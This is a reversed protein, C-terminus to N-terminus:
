DIRVSKVYAKTVQMYGKNTNFCEFTYYHGPSKMYDIIQQADNEQAYYELRAPEGQRMGRDLWSGQGPRLGADAKSTGPSFEVILKVLGQSNTPETWCRLSGGGRVRLPFSPVTAAQVLLSGVLMLIAILMKPSNM